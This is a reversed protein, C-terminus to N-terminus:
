THLVAIKLLLLARGLPAALLSLPRLHIPQRLLLLYCLMAYCLMAPMAPMAPMLLAPIHGQLRAHRPSSGDKRGM